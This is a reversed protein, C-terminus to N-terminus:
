KNLEKYAVVKLAILEEETFTGEMKRVIQEIDNTTLGQDFQTQIQKLEKIGVKKIILKAAQEKTTFPLNDEDVSEAEKLLKTLQPDNEIFQKVEELEGSKELENTISESINESAIKIGFHYVSFGLLGIVFLFVFGFKIIRM